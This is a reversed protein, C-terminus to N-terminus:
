GSVLCPLQGVILVFFILALEHMIASSAAEEILLDSSESTMRASQELSLTM